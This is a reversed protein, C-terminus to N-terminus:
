EPWLYRLLVLSAGSSLILALVTLANMNAEEAQNAIVHLSCYVYWIIEIM